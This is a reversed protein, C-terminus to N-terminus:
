EEKIEECDVDDSCSDDTTQLVLEKAPELINLSQGPPPSASPIRCSEDLYKMIANGGSILELGKQQKALLVPIYKQEPSAM